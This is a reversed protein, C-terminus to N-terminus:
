MYAIGAEAEEAEMDNAKENIGGTRAIDTLKQSAAKEEEFNKLLLNAVEGHGMLEAWDLAVAYGAMEYHEAYQAAAILAADRAREDRVHKIVWNEDEAIGRIGAARESKPEVDLLQMAEELRLAHGKTEELHDEFVMRLDENSANKALKSLVKVLEQEVDYLSQLKLILLEHLNGYIKSRNKNKSM